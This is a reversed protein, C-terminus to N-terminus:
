LYISAVRRRPTRAGLLWGLQAVRRADTAGDRPSRRRVCGPTFFLPTTKSIPSLHLTLLFLLFVPPCLLPNFITEEGNRSRGRSLRGALYSPFM